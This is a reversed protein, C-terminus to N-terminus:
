QLGAPQMGRGPMGAGATAMSPTQTTAKKLGTDRNLLDRPYQPPNSYRSDAVPPEGFQEKTVPPRIQNRTPGCGGLLCLVMLGGLLITGRM